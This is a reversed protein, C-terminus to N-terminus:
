RLRALNAKSWKEIEGAIQGAAARWQGGWTALSESSVDGTMENEYSGARMIARITYNNIQRSETRTTVLKGKSDKYTKSTAATRGNPIVKRELVEVTVDAQSKAEVLELWEKRKAISEKLDKLSDARAESSKDVFGSETPATFCFVKLPSSPKQAYGPTSALLAFVFVLSSVAISSRLRM